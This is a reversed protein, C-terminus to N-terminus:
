SLPKSVPSPHVPQHHIAHMACWGGYRLMAYRYGFLLMFFFLILLATFILLRLILDEIRGDITDLLPLLQPGRGLDVLRDFPSSHSHPSKV